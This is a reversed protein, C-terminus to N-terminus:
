HLSSCLYPVTHASITCRARACADHVHGNAIKEVEHEVVATHRLSKSSCIFLFGGTGGAAGIFRRHPMRRSESCGRQGQRTPVSTTTTYRMNCSPEKSHAQPAIKELCFSSVCSKARVHRALTIVRDVLVQHKTYTTQLSSLRPRQCAIARNSISRTSLRPM